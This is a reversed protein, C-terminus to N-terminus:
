DTGSHIPHNAEDVFVYRAEGRHTGLVQLSLVAALASM